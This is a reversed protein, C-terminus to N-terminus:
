RTTTTTIVIVVPRLPLLIIAEAHPLSLHLDDQCRVTQGPITREQVIRVPCRDAPLPRLVAPARVIRRLDGVIPGRVTLRLCRVLRHRVILAAGRRCTKQQSTAASPQM